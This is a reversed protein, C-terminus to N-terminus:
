ANPATHRSGDSPRVPSIPLLETAVSPPDIISM